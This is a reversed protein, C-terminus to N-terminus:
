GCMGWAGFLAGLDTGDVMGDGDVDSDCDSCPGWQGVMIGLDSGNVAGDGNLDAVCDKGPCIGSSVVADLASAADVLGWGTEVDYGPEGMDRCTQELIEEIDDPSLDPCVEIMLAAVGAVLPSAFSTGWVGAYDGSGYGGAGTIDTTMISVGPGYIGVDVGYASFSARQGWRSAAGVANVSPLSAPYTPSDRGDNGASAFHVIDASRTADYAAAIAASTGGYANSNNTVRVGQNAGWNLANVTWSWQAFWGGDCESTSVMARASLTRARPAVGAVGIGNGRIASICGAVPTGHTDCANGPIGTPIGLIENTTFDRGSELLLDPHDEEVGTDIVLVPHMASGVSTSWAATTDLDFGVLGGMQGTNEHYWCEDFLPDETGRTGGRGQVMLDIEVFSVAANGRISRVVELVDEGTDVDLELLALGPIADYEHIEHAVDLEFLLRLREEIMSENRWAVFIQPTLWAVGGATSILLPSDFDVEPRPEDLEVISWGTPTDPSTRNRPDALRMARHPTPHFGAPWGELGRVDVPSTPPSGQAMSTATAMLLPLTIFRGYRAASHLFRRRM